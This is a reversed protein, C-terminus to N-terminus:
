VDLFTPLGVCFCFIDVWLHMMFMGLMFFRPLPPHYSQFVDGLRNGSCFTTSVPGNGEAILFIELHAEEAGTFTIDLPTHNLPRFVLEPPLNQSADRSTPASSSGVNTQPFSKLIGCEGDENQGKNEAALSQSPDNDSTASPTQLQAIAKEPAGDLAPEVSTCNNDLPGTSAAPSAMGVELTDSVLSGENNQSHTAVPQIQEVLQLSQPQKIPPTGDMGAEVSANCDSDPEGTLPVTSAMEMAPNESVVSGANNKSPIPVPQVEEVSQLSQQLEAPPPSNSSGVHLETTSAGEIGPFSEKARAHILPDLETTPTAAPTSAPLPGLDMDMEFFTEIRNGEQVEKNLLAMSSTGLKEVPTDFIEERSCSFGAENVEMPERQVIAPCGQSGDMMEGESSRQRDQEANGPSADAADSVVMPRIGTHPLQATPVPSPPAVSQVPGRQLVMELGPLGQHVGTNVQMDPQSSAVQTFSEVDSMTPQDPSDQEDIITRKASPPVETTGDMPGENSTTNEMNAHLHPVQPFGECAGHFGPRDEQEHTSSSSDFAPPQSPPGQSSTGGRGKSLPSSIFDWPTVVPINASAPVAVGVFSSTDNLSAAKSTTLCSDPGAVSNAEETGDEM